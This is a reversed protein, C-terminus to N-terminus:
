GSAPLVVKVSFNRKYEPEIATAPDTLAREPLREAVESQISNSCFLPM